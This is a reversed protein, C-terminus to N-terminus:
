RNLGIFRGESRGWERKDPNRVPIAAELSTRWRHLMGRLRSVVEPLNRSLDYRESPDSSLDYLEVGQDEFFEILKYNVSRVSSGPTGGQNGYHPYHWYISERDLALGGRLLPMLSVGDVHAQPELKLGAAELFTPFFDTSVVPVSSTTGCPVVGPWSVLLPERVGGEYMWGKGEALPANSTPSGEMTSLGGNDSTFLILTNKRIGLEDLTGLLRGVNADLTEGPAEDPYGPIGWPSFYGNRPHGWECGAINVDFGHRDPWHERDGLHWKGVHWTAYGGEGLSEAM